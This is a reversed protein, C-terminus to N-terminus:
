GLGITAADLEMIKQWQPEINWSDFIPSRAQESTYGQTGILYHYMFASVRYNMICHIFLQQDQQSELLQCFQKVHGARPADFPVPLHFYNMGLSTVIKGENDISEPHDPMAINIVSSFGSDAIIGFQETQPQGATGIQPTLQVFNRIEDISKLATVSKFKVLSSSTAVFM